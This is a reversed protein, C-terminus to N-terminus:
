QDYDPSGIFKGADSTKFYVDDDRTVDYISLESVKSSSVHGDLWLVSIKGSHPKPTKTRLESAKGANAITNYDLWRSGNNMDLAYITKAPNTYQDIPTDSTLTNFGYAWNEDTCMFAIAEKFAQSNTYSHNPFLYPHLHLCVEKKPSGYSHLAPPLTGNHDAVYGKLALGYSRIHSLCEVSRAYSVSRQTVAVLVSVLIGVVAIVALTEILTFGPADAGPKKSPGTLIM